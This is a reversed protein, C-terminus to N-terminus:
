IVIIIANIGVSCLLNTNVILWSRLLNGRFLIGISIIKALFGILVPFNQVALYEGINISIIAINLVIAKVIVLVQAVITVIIIIVSITRPSVVCCSYIYVNM